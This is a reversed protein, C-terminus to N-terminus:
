MQKTKNKEKEYNYISDKITKNSQTTVAARKPGGHSSKSVKSLAEFHNLLKKPTKTKRIARKNITRKLL